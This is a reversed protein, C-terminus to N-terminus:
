PIWNQSLFFGSNRFDNKSDLDTIFLIRLELFWKQFGARTKQSLSLGLNMFVKKPIWSEDKIISLIRFEQFGNKYGVGRKKHYFSDQIGIFWKQFWSRMEQSLFFGSNRFFFCKQFGARTEQSLFFGSNGSLIKPIWSEDKIIALIRFEQFGNKYGVGRKKHYFSDQIGIFWKQFWSRMEQSLFFGSNRFFFCKQFGARTEQSLFFGSNGSLIKPIWSEDKIISLIRFEQFGNKYGVGRKKHYFSDQIGIFWKQFWLRLVRKIM